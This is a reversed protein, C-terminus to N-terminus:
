RLWYLRLTMRYSYIGTDSGDVDIFRVDLLRASRETGIIFAQLAAYTGIASLSLDVSGVPTSGAVPLTQTASSNGNATGSIVDINSLSLGSRAALANLDLILGVNDVSNPLFSTLRELNTPDINNRESALQNQQKAYQNAAALAQDDFAISAKTAAISGSWTPGVYVFLIGAAVLLAGLPLIRTNM